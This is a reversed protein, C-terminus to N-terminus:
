ENAPAVEVLHRAGVGLCAGDEIAADFVVDIHPEEFCEGAAREQDGIIEGVVALGLQQLVADVQRGVAVRFLQEVLDCVVEIAFLDAFLDGGGAAGLCEAAMGVVVPHFAEEFSDLGRECPKDNTRAHNWERRLGSVQLIRRVEAM